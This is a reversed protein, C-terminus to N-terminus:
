RPLSFSVQIAEEARTGIEKYKNGHVTDVWFVSKLIYYSGIGSADLADGFLPYHHFLSICIVIDIGVTFIWRRTM